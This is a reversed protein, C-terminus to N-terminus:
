IKLDKRVINMHLYRCITGIATLTFIFRTLDGVLPVFQLATLAVVGITANQFTVTNDIKKSFINHILTGVVIGSIAPAIIVIFIYALLVLFGIPIAILSLFLILIIFPIVFISLFGLLLNKMFSGIMLDSARQTFVRFVYILLFAIILTTIFRLIIWFSVLNIIATKVIGTERITKIENFIVNGSFESGSVKEARQPAYYKLNGLINANKDFVIKQTTVEVDSKLEGNINVNGAVIKLKNELTSNQVVDGGILISEGKIEANDAINILGGLVVLDGLVKGELYIEGGVIRLDGEIQGEIKSHGGIITADGKVLGKITIEGGAVVIDKEFQNDLLITGGATYFNENIFQGYSNVDTGTQIQAALAKQGLPILVIFLISIVILIKKMIKMIACSNGRELVM